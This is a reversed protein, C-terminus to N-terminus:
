NLVFAAGQEIWDGGGVKGGLGGNPICEGGGVRGVANDTLLESRGREVGVIAPDDIRDVAGAGEDDALRQPSRQDPEHPVAHRQEAEHVLGEGALAEPAPLPLAIEAMRAADLLDDM